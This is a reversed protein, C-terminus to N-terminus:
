FVVAALAGAAIAVILTIVGPRCSFAADAPSLQDNSVTVDTFTITIGDITVSFSGDAIAAHILRQLIDAEPTSLDVTFVITIIYEANRRRSFSRQVTSAAINAAGSLCRCSESIEAITHTIIAITQEETLTGVTITATLSLFSSGSGPAGSIKIAPSTPLLTPEPTPAPTVAKVGRTNCWTGPACAFGISPRTWSSTGEFEYCTSTTIAGTEPCTGM